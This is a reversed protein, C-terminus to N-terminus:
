ARVPGCRAAVSRYAACIRPTGGHQLSIKTKASCRALIALTNRKTASVNPVLGVKTCPAGDQKMFHCNRM